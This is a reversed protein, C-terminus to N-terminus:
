CCRLFIAIFIDSVLSEGWVQLGKTLCPLLVKPQSLSLDGRTSPIEKKIKLGRKATWNMKFSSALALNPDASNM